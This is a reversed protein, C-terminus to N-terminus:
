TKSGIKIERQRQIHRTVKTKPTKTRSSEKYKTRHDIDDSSTIGKESM